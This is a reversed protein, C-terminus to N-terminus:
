KSKQKKNELLKKLNQNSTYSDPGSQIINVKPKKTFDYLAKRPITAKRYINSDAIGFNDSDNSQKKKLTAEQNNVEEQPEDEDEDEEGRRRKKMTLNLYNKNESEIENYNINIDWILRSWKQVLNHALKIIEKSLKSKSLENVTQGIGCSKLYKVQIPLADLIELIKQIQNYPPYTGDPNVKLYSEIIVCGNQNLFENQFSHNALFKEIESMFKLKKIAPLKKQFAVLDSDYANKM